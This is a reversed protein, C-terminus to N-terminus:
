RRPHLSSKFALLYCKRHTPLKKKALFDSPNRDKLVVLGRVTLSSIASQTNKKYALLVLIKPPIDFAKM